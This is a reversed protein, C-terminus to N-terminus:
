GKKPLRKGQWEPLLDEIRLTSSNTDASAVATDVSSTRIPDAKALNQPVKVLKPKESSSENAWEYILKANYKAKGELGAALYQATVCVQPKRECFGKFDSVTEAAASIYAWSSASAQPGSAGQSLQPPSPLALLAGGVVLTKMILGMATGLM